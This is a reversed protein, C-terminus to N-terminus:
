RHKGGCEFKSQTYSNDSYDISKNVHVHNHLSLSKNTTRLIVAVKASIRSHLFRIKATIASVACSTQFYM